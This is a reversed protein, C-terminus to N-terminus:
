KALLLIVAGSKKKKRGIKEWGRVFNRVGCLRRGVEQYSDTVWRYLRLGYLEEVVTVTNKLVRRREMLFSEEIFIKMSAKKQSLIIRNM